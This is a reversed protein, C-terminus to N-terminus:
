VAGGYEGHRWVASRVPPFSCDSVSYLYFSRDRGAGGLQNGAVIVTALGLRLFMQGTTILSATTLESTVQAKEAADLKEDLKALYREERNCSQIEQVTELCEQIGEALTLRANM